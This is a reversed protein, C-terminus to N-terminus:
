RLGIFGVLTGFPTGDRRCSFFRDKHCYTCLKSPADDIHTPPIGASELQLRVAMQLDLHRKSKGEVVKVCEKLLPDNRFQVEVDSGVDYCCARISPGIAAMIDHPSCGLRGTMAEVAAGAINGVTGRRGSHVAAFVSRKADGLVVTVCDAAPAAIALGPQDSVIADYEAPEPDGMIWVTSSHGVKPFILKHTPPADVAALLRRRNEKVVLLSDRKVPRFLLNLTAVPPYSSCGGRRTSFGHFFTKDCISESRVVEVREEPVASFTTLFRSCEDEMASKMTDVINTLHAPIDVYDEGYVRVKVHYASTFITSLTLLLSSLEEKATAIAVASIRRSDLLRKLHFLRKLPSSPVDCSSIVVEIKAAWSAARIEHVLQSHCAEGPGDVMPVCLSPKDTDMVTRRLEDLVTPIEVATLGDLVIAEIDVRTEEHGAM